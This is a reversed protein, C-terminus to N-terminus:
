GCHYIPPLARSKGWAQDYTMLHLYWIHRNHSKPGKPTKTKWLSSGKRALNRKIQFNYM